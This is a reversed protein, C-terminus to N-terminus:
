CGCGKKKTDPIVPGSGESGSRRGRNLKRGKKMM